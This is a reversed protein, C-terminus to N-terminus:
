QPGRDVLRGEAKSVIKQAIVLIDGAVLNRESARLAALIVAALDDGAKVAPIGRLPTLVLDDSHPEPVIM